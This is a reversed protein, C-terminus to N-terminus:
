RVRTHIASLELRNLTLQKNQAATDESIHSLRLSKCRSLPINELRNAKESKINSSTLAADNVLKPINKSTKGGSKPNQTAKNAEPNLLNACYLFSNNIKITKEM